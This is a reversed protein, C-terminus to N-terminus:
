SVLRRPVLQPIPENKKVDLEGFPLSAAKKRFIWLAGNGHKEGAIRYQRCIEPAGFIQSVRELAKANNEEFINTLQLAFIGDQVLWNKAMTLYTHIQGDSFQQINTSLMNDYVIGFPSKEDLMHEQAGTPTDCYNYYSYKIQPNNSPLTVVERETPSSSRFFLSYTKNNEHPLPLCVIKDPLKYPPAQADSNKILYGFQETLPQQLDVVVPRGIAYERQPFIEQSMITITTFRKYPLLIQGFLVNHPIM